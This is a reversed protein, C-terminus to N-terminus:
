FDEGCVAFPHPCTQRLRVLGSEMLPGHRLIEEAQSASLTCIPAIQIVRHRQIIREVLEALMDEDDRAVLLKRAAEPAVARGHLKRASVKEEAAAVLDAVAHRQGTHQTTPVICRIIM